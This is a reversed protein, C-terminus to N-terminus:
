MAERLELGLDFYTFVNQAEQYDNDLYGYLVRENADSFIEENPDLSMFIPKVRGCRRYIDRIIAKDAEPLLKYAVSFKRRSPYADSYQNGYNNLELQSAEQEQMQIGVDPCQSLQTAVGLFIKSLELYGIANYQDDIYLEWYRYNQAGPTGFWTIVSFNDDWVPTFTADHAGPAHGGYLRITTSQNFAIAIESLPDFVMILTDIEETTKLDISITQALCSTTRYVKSRHFSKLNSLPFSPDETTASVDVSDDFLFNYDCIRFECSM